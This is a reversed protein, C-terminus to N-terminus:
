LSLVLGELPSQFVPRVTYRFCLSHLLETSKPFRNKAGGCKENRRAAETVYFQRMSNAAILWGAAPSASPM